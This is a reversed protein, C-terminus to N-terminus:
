VFLFFVELMIHCYNEMLSVCVHSVLLISRSESRVLMIFCCGLQPVLDRVVTACVAATAAEGCM